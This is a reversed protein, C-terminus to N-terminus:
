CRFCRFGDCDLEEWWGPPPTACLFPLPTWVPENAFFEIKDMTDEEGWIEFLAGEPKRGLSAVPTAGIVERVQQATLQGSEEVSVDKYSSQLFGTSVKKVKGQHVPVERGEADYERKFASILEV